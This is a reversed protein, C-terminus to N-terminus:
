RKEQREYYFRYFEKDQLTSKFVVQGDIGYFKSTEIKLKNSKSYKDLEKKIKPSFDEEKQKESIEFHFFKKREKQIKNEDLCILEFEINSNRLYNLFNENFEPAEYVIKRIVGKGNELIRQNIPSNTVITTKQGEFLILQNMLLNEDPNLDFRVRLDVDVLSINNFYNNSLIVDITKYLFKTGIYLTKETKYKRLGLQKFVGEALQEPLIKDVSKPHENLCFSPCTKGREPELKIHKVTSNVVWSTDCTGSYTHGYIAVTPIDFAAAIHVPCSDIGIHCLANKILFFSQNLSTNNIFKDVGEILPDEQTGIQLIKINKPALEKKLIKVVIGWYSYNKAPVKNSTHITIYKEYPLPYYHTTLVPQGVNVGLDRAYVSVLHSM